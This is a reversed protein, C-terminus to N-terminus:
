DAQGREPNEEGSCTVSCLLRRCRCFMAPWVWGAVLPLLCWGGAVVLLLLLLLLKGSTTNEPSWRVLVQLARLVVMSGDHMM